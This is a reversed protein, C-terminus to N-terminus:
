TSDVIVSLWRDRRINGRNVQVSLSRLTAIRGLNRLDRTRSHQPAIYPGDTGDALRNQRAIKVSVRQPAQCFHAGHRWRRNVAETTCNPIAQFSPKEKQMAAIGEIDTNGGDGVLESKVGHDNTGTVDEAVVIDARGDSSRVIQRARRPLDISTEAAAGFTAAAGAGDLLDKILRQAGASPGAVRAARVATGMLGLRM